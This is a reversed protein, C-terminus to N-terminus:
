FCPHHTAQLDDSPAQPLLHHDTAAWHLKCPRQPQLHLLPRLVPPLLAFHHHLLLPQLAALAAALLPLLV